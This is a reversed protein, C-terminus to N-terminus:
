AEPSLEDSDDSKARARWEDYRDRLAQRSESGKQQASLLGVTAGMAIGLILVVILRM